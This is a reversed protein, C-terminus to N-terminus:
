TPSRSGRKRTVSSLHPALSDPVEVEAPEGTTSREHAEAFRALDAVVDDNADALGTFRVRAKQPGDVAAVGARPCGGLCSVRRLTPAAGGAAGVRECATVFRDVFTGRTAAEYRPCTTCILITM